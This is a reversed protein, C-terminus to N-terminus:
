KVEMDKYLKQFYKQRKYGWFFGVIFAIIGATVKGWTTLAFVPFMIIYAAAFALILLIGLLTFWGLRYYWKVKEMKIEQQGLDM